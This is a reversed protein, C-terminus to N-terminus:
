PQFKLVQIKDNNKAAVLLFGTNTKISIMNRVDGKICLGTQDYLMPSFNGKGDGKLVLGISADLPGVQVRLPYFNGAAIIDKNGDGDIDEAVLGNLASLQAYNPLPHQSFNGNGNNQVYVSRLTKVMVTSAKDLQEKTFLDNVTAAAYDKYQPFN